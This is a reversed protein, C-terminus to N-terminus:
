SFAGSLVLAAMQLGTQLHGSVLQLSAKVHLIEAMNTLM